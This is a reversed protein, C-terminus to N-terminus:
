RPCFTKWQMYKSNHHLWVYSDSFSIYILICTTHFCVLESLFTTALQVPCCILCQTTLLILFFFFFFLEIGLCDIAVLMCSYLIGVSQLLSPCLHAHAKLNSNSFM